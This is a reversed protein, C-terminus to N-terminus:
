WFWGRKKKKEEPQVTTKEAKVPEKASVSVEEGAAQSAALEQAPAEIPSAVLSEKSKSIFMYDKKNKENVHWSLVGRMSKGDPMLDGRLFAIGSKESTQMTEWIVKNSKVRVSYNTPGFGKKELFDSTVRQSSFKLNDKVSIKKAATTREVLEIEWISNELIGQAEEVSMVKVEAQAQKASPADKAYVSTFLFLWIIVFFPHKSRVLLGDRM